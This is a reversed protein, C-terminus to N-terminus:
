NKENDESVRLRRLQLLIIGLSLFFEYAKYPCDICNLMQSTLTLLHACRYATAYVTPLPTRNRDAVAFTNVRVHVWPPGESSHSVPIRNTGRHVSRYVM